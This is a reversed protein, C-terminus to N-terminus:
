VMKITLDSIYATITEGLHNTMRVILTGGAQYNFPVPGINIVDSSIGMATVYGKSVEATYPGALKLTVYGNFESLGAIYVNASVLVYKITPLAIITVTNSSLSGINFNDYDETDISLQINTDSDSLSDSGAGYSYTAMAHLGNNFQSAIPTLYIETLGTLDIASNDSDTSAEVATRQFVTGSSIYKGIGVESGTPRHTTLDYTIVGYEYTGSDSCGVDAFSKCGPVATTMTVDSDGTTETYMRALNYFPGTQM